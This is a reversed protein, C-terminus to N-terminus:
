LLINGSPITLTAPHNLAHISYIRGLKREITERLVFPNLPELLKTLTQKASSSILPSELIRQYPTKPSSHRKITKSGIREKSLLKMSPCFFNHFLRWEHKYLKNLLPVVQPDDLRQYGLWQRVHTWNKQEVHANDDKHYARSRTFQIPQKRQTFHKFLHHNLFESGNDCDFGLLPFPLSSEIDKIQELVDCEGKGWVARQETWGTAIDVCDITYAFTGSLSEGCHAVTDAELFGPRSQDWQNTQIPIHKRLLTGPKTTTRGRKQYQVRVPRLLRDITAASIHHLARLTQPPLPGFSEVYGPLWLPLLAKLRKSCPLNAALWIQKLPKLISEKHYLPARGRKKPQPQAFRKYRRLVRIAHKRHCGCTACFENLILTKEKPYAKKYRLFITEIYEKKSRPSM